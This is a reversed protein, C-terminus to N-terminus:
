DYTIEENNNEQPAELIPLQRSKCHPCYTYAGVMFTADKWYIGYQKCKSCIM